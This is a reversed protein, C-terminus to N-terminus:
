IVFCTVQCVLPKSERLPKTGRTDLDCAELIHIRLVLLGEHGGDGLLWDGDGDLSVLRSELEVFRTDEGAGTSGLEVVTDEDDTVTGVGALVVPLDLVGPTGSPALISVDKKGAVDLVLGALTANSGLWRVWGHAAGWSWWGRWGRWGRWRWWGRRGWRTLM